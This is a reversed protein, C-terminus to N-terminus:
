FCGHVTASCTDVTSGANHGFLAGSSCRHSSSPKRCLAGVVFTFQQFKDSRNVLIDVAFGKCARSAVPVDPVRFQVSDSARRSDHVLLLAPVRAAHDCSRFGGGRGGWSGLSGWGPEDWFIDVDMGTGLLYWRGPVACSRWWTRGHEDIWRDPDEEEEEEEEKLSGKSVLRRLGHARTRPSEPM